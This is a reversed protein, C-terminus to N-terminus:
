KCLPRQCTWSGFHSNHLPALEKGKLGRWLVVHLTAAPKVWSAQCLLSLLHIYFEVEQLRASFSLAYCRHQITNYKSEPKLETVWAPRHSVLYGLISQFKHYKYQRPRSFSLSLSLFFHYPTRPHLTTNILSFFPSISWEMGNCYWIWINHDWNAIASM